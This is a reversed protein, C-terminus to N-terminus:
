DLYWWNQSNKSVNSTPKPRNFKLTKIVILHGLGMDNIKEVFDDFGKLDKPHKSKFLYPFVSFINSEPISTQDVFIIGDSNWTLENGRSDFQQLLTQAQKRHRPPV